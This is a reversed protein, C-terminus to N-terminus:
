FITHHFASFVRMWAHVTVISMCSPHKYQEADYYRRVSM